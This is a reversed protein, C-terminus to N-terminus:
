AWTTPSSWSRSSAGPRDVARRPCRDAPYRRQGTSSPLPIARRDARGGPAPLVLHVGPTILRARGSEGRYVDITYSIPQFTYFSIGLPLVLNLLPLDPTGGVARIVDAASRIFFGLYKFAALVGLNVLLATALFLTRRRESAADHIRIACLYDM